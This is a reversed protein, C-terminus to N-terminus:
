DLCNKLRYERLKKVLEMAKRRTEFKVESNFCITEVCNGTQELTPSEQILELFRGLNVRM